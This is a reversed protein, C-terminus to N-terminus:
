NSGCTSASQSRNALLIHLAEVQEHFSPDQLADTSAEASSAPYPFRPRGAESGRGPKNVCLVQAARYLTRLYELPHHTRLHGLPHHASRSPLFEALVPYCKSDITGWAAWSFLIMMHLGWLHREDGSEARLLLCGVRGIIGRRSCTGGRMERLRTSWDRRM